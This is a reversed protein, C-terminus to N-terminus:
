GGPVRSIRPIDRSFKLRHSEHVIFGVPRRLHAPPRELPYLRPALLGLDSIVPPVRNLTRSLVARTLPGRVGVIDVLPDDYIQHEVADSIFGNGISTRLGSNDHDVVTSLFQESFKVQDKEEKLLFQLTSGLRSLPKKPAKPLDSVELTNLSKHITFLYTPLGSIELIIPNM